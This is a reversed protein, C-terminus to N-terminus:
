NKFLNILRSILSDRGKAKKRELETDLEILQKLQKIRAPDTNSCKEYIDLAKSFANVANCYDKMKHYAGGVKMHMDAIAPHSKDFNAEFIALAALYKPLAQANDGQKDFSDGDVICRKAIELDPRNSYINSSSKTSNKEDESLTKPFFEKVKDMRGQKYYLTCIYKYSEIVSAHKEGFLKEKIAVSKHLSELAKDINGVGEYALSINDYLIATNAQEKIGLKDIIYLVREYYDLAKHPLNQKLYATGINNIAGATHPHYEGLVKEYISLAKLHFEFAKESLNQASFIVGINDYTTATYVSDGNILGRQIELAKSYFELARSYDGQRHYATAVNNYTTALDIQNVPSLKEWIALARIHYKLAESPSHNLLISGINDYINAMASSEKDVNEGMIEIAKYLYKLVDNVSCNGKKYLAMGANCYSNALVTPNSSHDTNLSILRNYIKIAKEYEAYEYLFSGFEFLLQIYKDKELASKEAWEVAKAYISYVKSIREKAILNIDALTTRAQLQFAQIDQHVLDRQRELQEMHHEAEQAIEDLLTNARELNGEEFAEIARRMMDSVQELQMATIRQATDFLAKQLHSFEAKLHNLRNLKQQLDERLDEDDPFKEVRMRAKEIIEPLTAIEASMKQYAENGAAFKLNDLLAVPVGELMVAGEELKLKEVAGSTEVLQLQMVFHLQMSDRNNYRSWYHGMEKCLREKFEKLEQSEMEGEKLDKCYVYVKPTAKKRFEETAIDFEEITFEGAKTHFIALFMDSVKVMENYEDQKRRINYAADGDEWEFLDIHIGREEYIKNLRRILNGFANRDDTLEESSALFIKITKMGFTKEIIYSGNRYRFRVNM